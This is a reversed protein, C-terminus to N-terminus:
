VLSLLAKRTVKLAGERSRLEKGITEIIKSRTAAAAPRTKDGAAAPGTKGDATAPRTRGGAAAPGKKGGAEVPGARVTVMEAGSTIAGSGSRM